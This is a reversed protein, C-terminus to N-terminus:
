LAVTRLDGLGINGFTVSNVALDMSHRTGSEWVQRTSWTKYFSAFTIKGLKPDVYTGTAFKATIETDLWAQAVTKTRIRQRARTRGRRCIKGAM